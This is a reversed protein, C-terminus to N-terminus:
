RNSINKYIDAYQQYYRQTTFNELYRKRAERSFRAALSKNYYIRNIAKTLASSDMAPVVIGTVNNRNIYSTGTGIQTSILPKGHMLGEILCVGFSEARLHSPLIIASALEFLAEKRQGEVRGVFFVNNLRYAKAQQKLQEDLPGTGAIVINADTYRAAKLLFSLGKYYCIVGIFLIFKKPLKKEWTEIDASLNQRITDSVGLPIFRCKDRYPRLDRSTEVYNRSSAVICDASNLFNKMLPRYLLKLLKQCVIDSHYTIVMPKSRQSMFNLLDAFPWPFHYHIIDSQSAFYDFQRMMEFSIPCSAVSYTQKMLSVNVSHVKINASQQGVALVQSEFGFRRTGTSLEQIATEVGGVQEPLYSKYIHM